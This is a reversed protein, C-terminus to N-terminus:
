INEDTEEQRIKYKRENQTNQLKDTNHVTYLLIHKIKNKKKTRNLNYSHM